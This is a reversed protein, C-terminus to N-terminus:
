KVELDALTYSVYKELKNEFKDLSAVLGSDLNQMFSTVEEEDDWDVDRDDVNIKMYIKVQHM